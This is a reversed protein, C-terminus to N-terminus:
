QQYQYNSVPPQNQNSSPDERIRNTPLAAIPKETTLGLCLGDIPVLPYQARIAALAVKRTISASYVSCYNVRHQHIADLKRANFHTVDGWQYGDKLEQQCGALSLLTIFLLLVIDKIM